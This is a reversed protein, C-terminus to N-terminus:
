GGFGHRYDTSLVCFVISDPFVVCIANEESQQCDIM